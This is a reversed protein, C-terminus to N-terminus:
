KHFRELTDALDQRQEASFVQAIDASLALLEASGDDVRVLMDQRLAELQQEDITDALLAERWQLRVDAHEARAAVVREGVGELLAEVEARQEKTADARDLVRAAFFDAKQQVQDADLEGGRSCHHGFGGGFGGAGAFAAPLALLAVLSTAGLLLFFRNRRSKPRPSEDSM